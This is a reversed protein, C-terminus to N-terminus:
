FAVDALAEVRTLVRRVGQQANELPLEFSFRTHHLLQMMEWADGCAVLSEDVHLRTVVCLSVAHNTFM